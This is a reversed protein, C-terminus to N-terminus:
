RLILNILSVVDVVNIIGNQDIIFDDKLQRIMDDINRGSVIVKDFDIHNINNVHYIKTDNFKGGVKDIDNEVFGVINYIKRDLLRYVARGHYSLGFILVRM